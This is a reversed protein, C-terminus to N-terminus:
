KNASLMPGVHAKLMSKVAGVCATEKEASPRLRRQLQGFYILWCVFGCVLTKFILRQGVAVHLMSWKGNKKKLKGAVLTLPGRAHYCEFIQATNKENQNRNELLWCETTLQTACM